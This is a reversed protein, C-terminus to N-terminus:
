FFVARHFRISYKKSALQQLSAGQLLLCPTSCLLPIVLSSSSLSQLQELRVEVIVIHCIFHILNNLGLKTMLLM